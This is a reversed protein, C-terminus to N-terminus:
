NEIVKLDKKYHELGREIAVKLHAAEYRSLGLEKAKEHLRGEFSLDIHPMRDIVKTYIEIGLPEDNQQVFREWCRVAQFEAIEDKYCELEIRLLDDHEDPDIADVLKEAWNLAYTEQQDLDGDDKRNWLRGLEHNVQGLHLLLRYVCERLEKKDSM